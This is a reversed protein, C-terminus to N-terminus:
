RLRINTVVGEGMGEAIRKLLEPELYQLRTRWVEHDCHVELQSGYLKHPQTHEAILPGVLEAWLLRLRAM